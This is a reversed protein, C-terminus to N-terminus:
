SNNDNRAERMICIKLINNLVVLLYVVNLIVFSEYAFLSSYLVVIFIIIAKTVIFGLIGLRKLVTRMPYFREYMGEKFAYLTLLLDGINLLVFMIILITM